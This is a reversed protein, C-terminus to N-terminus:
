LHDRNHADVATHVVLMAWDAPDMPLDTEDPIPPPPVDLHAAVAVAHEPRFRGTVPAIRLRKALADLDVDALLAIEDGQYRGQVPLRDLDRALAHLDVGELRALDEPEFGGEVPLIVEPDAETKEAADPAPSAIVTRAIQEGDLPAGDADQGFLATDIVEDARERDERDRAEALDEETVRRSGGGSVADDDPVEPPRVARRRFLAVMVDRLQAARHMRGRLDDGTARHWLECPIERVWFGGTVADISLSTEVGWGRALPQCADWAERTICRTGSLPQQPEWGTARAIGRRATGVVLGMGGAGAQPPLLAIAMDVGDDLVAEVLPSAAAASQEMDADLFLLARPAADAEIVPLPGTHGSERPERREEQGDAGTARDAADRLAVIEAGTAMAAAKGQNSPHRVVHAGAGMAVASTSDTSGDDVVVVLDVREITRAAHVTAEIREAENKAPIVVAVAEPRGVALPGAATM